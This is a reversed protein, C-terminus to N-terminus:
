GEVGAGEVGLVCGEVGVRCNGVLGSGVLPPVGPPPAGTFTVGLPGAAPEGLVPEGLVPDGLVPVGDRARGPSILCTRGLLLTLTLGLSPSVGAPLEEPFAEPLGLIVGPPPPVTAGAFVGIRDIEEPEPFSRSPRESPKEPGRRTSVRVSEGSSVRTTLSRECLNLPIALAM